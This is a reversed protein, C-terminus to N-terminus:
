LQGGLGRSGSGIMTSTERIGALSVSLIIGVHPPIIVAPLGPGSCVLREDHLDRTHGCPM